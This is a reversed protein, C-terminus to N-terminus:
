FRGAREEFHTPKALTAGGKSVWDAIWEILQHVSVRPPGFLQFAKQANSLLADSAEHGEFRVEKGLRKGFEEAISRVSLLEPGTINIV